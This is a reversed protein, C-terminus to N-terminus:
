LVRGNSIKFLKGNALHDQYLQGVETTTVITQVKDFTKILFNQRHADLESMVDDLLLIPYEGLEEYIIEIESLKLALAATRQQGQSGFSRIDKENISLGLDDRHPGTTTFGREVDKTHTQSLTTLFDSKITDYELLNKTNLSCIYKVVLNEKGDTIQEHINHSLVALRNIFVQRRVILQAGLDALSEDWIELMARDMKRTMQMKKLASNRQDLTRHYKMLIHCYAPSIHSLERDIFRRRDGPSEKVLKLDEPSFLVINMHGILESMKSLNVGNVKVEKKRNNLLRIDIQSVQGLKEFELRIFTAKSGIRMWEVDKSTRFSKGFGCIYVSELLNTKGQGNDGIILNLHDSLDVHCIEYNRYDKLSIQKIRM